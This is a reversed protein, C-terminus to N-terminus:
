EDLVALMKRVQQEVRRDVRVSVRLEWDARARVYGEVAEGLSTPPDSVGLPCLLHEHMKRLEGAVLPTKGADAKSVLWLTWDWFHDDIRPLTDESVVWESAPTHAVGDFILDVKTPGTLLLMYCASDSLRDWQRVLPDLPEVLAPLEQALGDFDDTRM